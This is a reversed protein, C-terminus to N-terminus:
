SIQQFPTGSEMALLWAKTRLGGRGGYGHLKGDSGIVRHCPIVLAMPNGAQVSGVARAAGPKGIQAALQGYSRVEGCPIAYTARLVQEQFFTMGRWDIELDFQRRKGELFELLESVAQSSIQADLIVPNYGRAELAARCEEESDSFEVAALGAETVGVWVSGIATPEVEAIWIKKETM